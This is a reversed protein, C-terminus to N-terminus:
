VKFGGLGKAIHDVEKEITYQKATNICNKSMNIYSIKEIAAEVEEKSDVLFGNINDKITGLSSVVNKSSIVPIGSALAELTTHGYIDEKSLTIFGDCCSMIEMLESSPVFERIIINNINNNKLYNEYELKLPGSGYLVLSCDKNKFCEFMEINNKRPIFNSASIILKGLPLDYKKRLEVRKEESMNAEKIDTEFYTCYPYNVINDNAGYFKLYSNAEESPSLYSSANKIYRKKLFRKICSEKERIVGGNIFLVYPLHKKIMYNIALQESITSYGNMVILDYDRYNKKIYKKLEFSFSNEKGFVGKKLFMHKFDIENEAYFQKTRDSAAQREFIVFLDVKEALKNFM